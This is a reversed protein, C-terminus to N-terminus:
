NQKKKNQKVQKFNKNSVRSWPRKKQKKNKKIFSKKM